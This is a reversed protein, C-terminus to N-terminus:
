QSHKLVATKAADVLAKGDIGNKGAEEIWRDVVQQNLKDFEAMEGASLKIIEGDAEAQM